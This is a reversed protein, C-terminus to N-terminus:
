AGFGVPVALAGLGARGDGHLVVPEANVAAAALDVVLLAGFAVAVAALARTRRVLTAVALVGGLGLAVPRSLDPRAIAEVAAAVFVIAALVQDRRGEPPPNTVAAEAWLSRAASWM